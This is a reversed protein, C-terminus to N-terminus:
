DPTPPQFEGDTKPAAHPNNRAASLERMVEAIDGGVVEILEFVTTLSPVNGGKEV